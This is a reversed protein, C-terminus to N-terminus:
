MQRGQNNEFTVHIHFVATKQTNESKSKEDLKGPPKASGM